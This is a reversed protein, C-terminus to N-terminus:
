LDGQQIGISSAAAYRHSVKTWNVIKFFADVYDGRRNQYNLYYAHEWVDLGLLPVLTRSMQPNDQNPYSAVKVKAETKDFYFYAWGSGFRTLAAQKFSQKAADWTGFSTTIANQLETSIFTEDGGAGDGNAAMSDFFDAHNVFGGGNNRVTNVLNTPVKDLESLLEYVGMKALHKTEPNSRLTALAKNIKKRYGDHHKLHHIRMTKEDIFPALADYPYPLPPLPINQGAASMLSGLVFLLFLQLNYM